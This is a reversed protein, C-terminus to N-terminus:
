CRLIRSCGEQQLREVRCPFVGLAPSPEPQLSAAAHFSAVLESSSSGKGAGATPFPEALKWRGSGEGAVLSSEPLWSAAPFTDLLPSCSFSKGAMEGVALTKSQGTYSCEATHVSKVAAHLKRYMYHLRLSLSQRYFWLEIKGFSILTYFIQAYETLQYVYDQFFM